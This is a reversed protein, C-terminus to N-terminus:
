EALEGIATSLEGAFFMFIYITAPGSVLLAITPTVLIDIADPIRGCLGGEINSYLAAGAIAGIV